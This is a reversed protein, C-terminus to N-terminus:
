GLSLTGHSPYDKAKVTTSVGGTALGNLDSIFTNVSDIQAQTINTGTLDPAATVFKAKYGQAKVDAEQVLDIVEILAQIYAQVVKQKQFPM